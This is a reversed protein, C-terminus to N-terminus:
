RDRSPSPRRRCRRWCPAATPHRSGAAPCRGATSCRGSCTRRAPGSSTSSGRGSTRILRREVHGSLATPLWRGKKKGAAGAVIDFHRAGADIRRGERLGRGSEQLAALGIRGLAARALRQPAVRGVEARQVHQGHRQIRLALVGAGGFYERFQGPAVRRVDVVPHVEPRGQLRLVPVVLRQSCEGAGRCETLSRGVEVVVDPQHVHITAAEFGRAQHELVGHPEGRVVGLDGVLVGDAAVLRHVLVVGDGGQQAPRRKAAQVGLHQGLDAQQQHIETFQAAGLPRDLHRRLIWPGVCLRQQPHDLHEFARVADGLGPRCEVLQPRVRARSREARVHVEDLRADRIPFPPGLVRVVQVPLRERRRAVEVQAMELEVRERLAEVREPAVVVRERRELFRMPRLERVHVECRGLHDRPAPQRQLDHIEAAVGRVHRCHSSEPAGPTSALGIKM